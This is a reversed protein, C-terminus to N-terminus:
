LLRAPLVRRAMWQAAVSFAAAAGFSTLLGHAPLLLAVALTFGAFAYLGGVMSRLLVVAHAPGINRHAFGALVVGLVPFVTALGSWRPGIGAAASTVALTLLVGAAMRLVLEIRPLAGGELRAAIRPMVLPAGLLGGLAAALSIWVSAPLHGLVLLMAAWAAIGGCLALPWATRLCLRSYGVNFSVTAAVAALSGAAAEAGFDRGNELSLFLLIPGGVVPFGALWGAVGPGWRRGALSILGLFSPVVFLKLVLLLPPAITLHPWHHCVALRGNM